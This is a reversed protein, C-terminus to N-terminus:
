VSRLAARVSEESPTGSFGADTQYVRCGFLFTERNDAGPEVDHGNVRVSPSGLFHVREADEVSTVEIPRLDVEVSEEAAVREILERAAGVNPCGNFSLLEVLEPAV